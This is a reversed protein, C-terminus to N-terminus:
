CRTQGPCPGYCTTQGVNDTCRYHTYTNICHCRCTGGTSQSAAHAVVPRSWSVVSAGVVGAAGVALMRLFRSRDTPAGAATGLSPVFLEDCNTHEM